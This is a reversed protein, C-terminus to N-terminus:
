EQVTMTALLETSREKRFGYQHDSLLFHSELYVRLISAIVTELLKSLPHLLSIPRWNACKTSDVSGKPIATVYSIKWGAPFVGSFLCTNFLMILPAIIGSGCRALLDFWLVFPGSAKGPSLVQQLARSNEQQSIPDPFNGSADEPLLVTCHSACQQQTSM